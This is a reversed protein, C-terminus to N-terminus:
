IFKSQVCAQRLSVTKGTPMTIQLKLNEGQKFTILQQSDVTKYAKSGVSFQFNFKPTSQPSGYLSQGANINNAGIFLFLSILVLYKKRFAKM